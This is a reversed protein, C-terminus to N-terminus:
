FRLTHVTDASSSGPPANKGYESVTLSGGRTDPIAGVGPTFDLGVLVNIRSLANCDALSYPLTSDRTSCAFDESIGLHLMFRLDYLTASATHPAVRGDTTQYTVQVPFSIQDVTHNMSTERGCAAPPLAGISLTLETSSGDDWTGSYTAQKWARMAEASLPPANGIGADLGVLKEGVKCGTSSWSAFGGSAGSVMNGSSSWTDLSIEGACGQEFPGVQYSLEVGTKGDKPKISLSGGIDSSQETFSIPNIGGADYRVTATGTEAFTGDDTNV